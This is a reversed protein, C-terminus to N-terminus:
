MLLLSNENISPKQIWCLSIDVVKRWYQKFDCKFFLLFVEDYGFHIRIFLKWTPTSNFVRLYWYDPVSYKYYILVNINIFTFHPHLHVICHFTTPFLVFFFCLFAPQSLASYFAFCFCSLIQMIACCTINFNLIQILAFSMDISHTYKICFYAFLFSNFIFFYLFPM